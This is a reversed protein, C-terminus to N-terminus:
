QMTCKQRVYVYVYGRDRRGGALCSPTVRQCQVGREGRLLTSGVPVRHLPLPSVLKVPLKCNRFSLHTLCRSGEEVAGVTNGCCMARRGKPSAGGAVPPSSWSADTSPCRTTTPWQKGSDIGLIKQISVSNPFFISYHVSSNINKGVEVKLGRLNFALNRVHHQSLSDKLGLM